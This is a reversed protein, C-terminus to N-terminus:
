ARPRARHTRPSGDNHSARAEREQALVRPLQGGHLDLLRQQTLRDWHLAFSDLHGLGCAEIRAVVAPEPAVYPAVASIWGPHKAIIDELSTGSRALQGGAQLLALTVALVGRDVSRDIPTAVELFASVAENPDAGRALEAEIEALSAIRVTALFEGGALPKRPILRTFWSM